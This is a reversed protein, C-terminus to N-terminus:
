QLLQMQSIQVYSLKEGDLSANIAETLEQRLERQLDGSTVVQRGKNQTLRFIIDRVLPMKEEILHKDPLDNYHLVVRMEMIIEPRSAQFNIFFPALDLAGPEPERPPPLPDIVLVQVAEGGEDAPASFFLKYVGFSLGLLGLVAPGIILLIKLRPRKRPATAEEAPASEAPSIEAPETEAPPAPEPEKEPEPSEAVDDLFIGELDLEVKTPVPPGDDEGAEPVAAPEPQDDTLGAFAEDIALTSLRANFDEDEEPPFNNKKYSPPVPARGGSVPLDLDNGFAELPIEPLSEFDEDLEAAELAEGSEAPIDPAPEEARPPPSDPPEDPLDFDAAFAEEPEDPLLDDPFESVATEFDEPQSVAIAEPPPPAEPADTPPAPESADPPPLVAPPIDDWDDGGPELPLSDWDDIDAPKKEDAMPKPKKGLEPWSM